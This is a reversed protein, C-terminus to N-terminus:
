TQRVGKVQAPKRPSTRALIICHYFLNLARCFAFVLSVSLRWVFFRLFVFFCLDLENKFNM